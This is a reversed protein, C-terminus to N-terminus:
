RPSRSIWDQGRRIMEPMAWINTAICPSASSCLKASSPPSPIVAHQFSSCTLTASPRYCDSQMQDSNNKDLLGSISWTMLLVSNLRCLKLALLCLGPTLSQKACASSLPPWLAAVRANSSKQSSSYPRPITKQRPQRLTEDILRMDFNPGAYTTHVRNPDLLTSISLRPASATQSQSSLAAAARYRPAHKLNIKEIESLSLEGRDHGRQTRSKRRACNAGHELRLLPRFSDRGHPAPRLHCRGALARRRTPLRPISEAVISRHRTPGNNRCRFDLGGVSATPRSHPHRAAAAALRFGRLSSDVPSSPIM